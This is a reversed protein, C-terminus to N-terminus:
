RPLRLLKPDKIFHGSAAGAGVRRGCQACRWRSLPPATTVQTVDAWLALGLTAATQSAAYAGRDEPGVPTRDKGLLHPCSRPPAQSKLTQRSVQDQHLSGPPLIDKPSKLLLM